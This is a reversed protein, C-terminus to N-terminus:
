QSRRMEEIQGAHYAVGRDIQDGILPRLFADFKAFWRVMEAHWAWMDARYIPDNADGACKAVYAEDTLGHQVQGSPRTPADFWGDPVAVVLEANLTANWEGVYQYRVYHGVGRKYPGCEIVTLASYPERVYIVRDGPKFPPEGTVHAEMESLAANWCLATM